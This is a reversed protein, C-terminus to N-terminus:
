RLGVQPSVAIERFKERPHVGAFAAERALGNRRRREIAILGWLIGFLLYVHRWHDIDIVTALVIHGFFVFYAVQATKQNPGSRFLLPFSAILTWIVLILYSFFGFWGYTTLTKLWIDHEDEGFLHGFQLAGIGLPRSLMMNFGIVHRDFRGFHQADYNQVVHAREAFLKAIAPISLIVAFLLGALVLGGIALAVYRARVLSRRETAYLMVIVMLTAFVALGWAGRSFSLFVGLLVFLAGLGNLLLSRFSRTLARQLFVAYPFVLFPGFVNPDQFGGDARGYRTFLGEPTLGAYGVVGLATTVIAAALWANVIAPLRRPHDAVVCAFFCASLALFGTIPYYTPYSYKMQTSAILGGVMFTVMLLILPGIARPIRLGGLLWLPILLGLFAEYPAPEVIVFGGLFVALWLAADSLRSLPIGSPRDLPIPHTTSM